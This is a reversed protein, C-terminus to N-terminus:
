QTILVKLQEVVVNTLASTNRVHIRIFDNEQMQMTDFFGVNEDRGATNATAKIKSITRLGVVGGLSSYIAFECINTAGATFSLSVFVKYRRSVKSKCVIENNVNVEFKSNGAAELLTGAIQYYPNTNTIVTAVANDQMYAFIEAYSNEIGTCERFLATNSDFQVGSLYTGNGSFSVNDLIYGETPITASASINLGVTNDIAIVPGYVIRFRRNITATAPVRIIDGASGTGQLLSFNFAATDFTGDFVLGQANLFAGKTYVFNGFNKIIGINPVNEVNVGTWDLAVNNGTGDIDFVTDVDKLTLFQMALTYESTILAVGTGLGTSTLSSTESSTGFITTHGSTELRGGELDVNGCIFYSMGNGLTHVGAVPKPFDYKSRVIVPAGSFGSGSLRCLVSASSSLESTVAEGIVTDTNFTTAETGNWYLKQGIEIEESAKPLEYIGDLHLSVAEGIAANNAAIGSFNGQTTFDGSQVASTATVTVIDGTSKYNKM